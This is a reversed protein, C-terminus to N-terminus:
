TGCSVVFRHACVQRKSQNEVLAVNWRTPLKGLLCGCLKPCLSGSKRNHQTRHLLFLNAQALTLPSTVICSWVKHLTFIREQNGSRLVPSTRKLPPLLFVPSTRKLPRLIDNQRGSASSTRRCRFPVRGRFTKNKTNYILKKTKDSTTIFSPKRVKEKCLFSSLIHEMNTWGFSFHKERLRFKDANLPASEARM